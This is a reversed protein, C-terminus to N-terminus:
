FSFTFLFCTIMLPRRLIYIIAIGPAHSLLFYLKLCFLCILVSTAIYCWKPFRGFWTGRCYISSIIWPYSYFLWLYVQIFLSHCFSCGSASNSVQLALIDAKYRSQKLQLQTLYVLHADSMGQGVWTLHLNLNELKAKYISPDEMDLLKLTQMTAMISQVAGADLPNFKDALARIVWRWSLLAPCPSFFCPLLVAKFKKTFNSWWPINVMLRDHDIWFALQLLSWVYNTTM